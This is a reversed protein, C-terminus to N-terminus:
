GLLRNRPPATEAGGLIAGAHRLLLDRDEFQASDGLAERSNESVVVDVEVEISALDM